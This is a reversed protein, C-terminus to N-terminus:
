GKTLVLTLGVLSSDLFQIEIVQGPGKIIIDMNARLNEGSVAVKFGNPNVTGSITGSWDHTLEKWSGTLKGEAHSVTSAVEISGSQAACRITQKLEHGGEQLLYTVRCKVSETNGDKIGLRGDGVWRGALKEFPSPDEARVSARGQGVALLAALTCAAIMRSAAIAFM